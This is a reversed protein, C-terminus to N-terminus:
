ILLRKNSIKDFNIVNPTIVNPTVGFTIVGLTIFVSNKMLDQVVHYKHNTNGQCREHIAAKGRKGM